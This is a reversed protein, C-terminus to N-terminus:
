GGGGWWAYRQLTYMCVGGGFGLHKERNLSYKLFILAFGTKYPMFSDNKVIQPQIAFIGVAGLIWRSDM